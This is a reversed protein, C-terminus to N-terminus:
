SEAEPTALPAKQTMERLMWILREFLGTLQLLGLKEERGLAVTGESLFQRRVGEMLEGRDGTIRQILAMDEPDGSEMAEVFSLLVADLGELLAIRIDELAASGRLLPAAAAFESLAAELTELRSHRDVIRYVREHNDATLRDDALDDIHIAAQKHVSRFSERLASLRRGRAAMDDMRAADLYRPLRGLLRLQEKEAMLVAIEPNSAAHESLYALRSEDEQETPPYLRALLKESLGILPLLVLAAIANFFLYIFALQQGIDDSLAQVGAMLPPFGFATEMYFLPVLVFCGFFNVAVQYMAVQRATGRIQGSLLWTAISSGMNTGYVVMVSQEFTFLGGTAFAIALLSVTISSQCIVTLVAGIALAALASGGAGAM